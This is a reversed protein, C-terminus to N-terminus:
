PSLIGAPVGLNGPLSQFWASQGDGPCSATRRFEWIGQFPNFSRFRGTRTQRIWWGSSGFERSPISVLFLSYISLYSCAEGSSGFERSPISVRQDPLPLADSLGPRFEWIGQFPNFCSFNLETWARTQMLGSSGFERSPISVQRLGGPFRHSMLAPVGLNGPLSQFLFVVSEVLANIVAAPVGLNGPLSQFQRIAYQPGSKNKAPVGLNGPLSQFKRINSFWSVQVIAPVGM